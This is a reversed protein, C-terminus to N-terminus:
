EPKVRDPDPTIILFDGTDPDFGPPDPLGPFKAKAEHAWRRMADIRAKNNVGAKRVSEAEVALKVRALEREYALRSREEEQKLKALDYDRAKQKEEYFLKVVVSIVGTVSAAIGALSVWLGTNAVADSSSIQALLGGMFAVLGGGISALIPVHLFTELKIGGRTTDPWYDRDRIALFPM